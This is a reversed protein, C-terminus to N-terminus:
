ARHGLAHMNIGGMNVTTQIHTVKYKKQVVIM